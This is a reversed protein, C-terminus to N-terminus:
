EEIIKNWGQPYDVPSWVCGDMLCEYLENNFIIKDGTNYADHSGIPQVWEPYIVEEPIEPEEPLEPEEPVIIDEEPLEEDEGPQVKLDNVTKSLTEITNKVDKVVNQIEEIKKWVAEFQKNTGAYSNEPNARERALGELEQKQEETLHSEIYMKNIKHLMDKLEFNGKQIVNKIFDFM